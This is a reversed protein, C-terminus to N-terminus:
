PAPVEIIEGTSDVSAGGAPPCDNLIFMQSALLIDICAQVEEDSIDIMSNNIGFLNDIFFCQNFPLIPAFVANAIWAQPDGVQNGSGDRSGALQVADPLQDICAADPFVQTMFDIGQGQVMSADYCPCPIAPPPESGFDYMCGGDAPPTGNTLIIKKRPGAECTKLDVGQMFAKNASTHPVYLKGNNKNGNGNMRFTALSENPNIKLPLGDCKTGDLEGNGKKFGWNIRVRKKPTGNKIAIANDAGKKFYCPKKDDNVITCNEQPTIELEGNGTDSGWGGVRVLYNEGQM